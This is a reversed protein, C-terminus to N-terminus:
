SSILGAKAISHLEDHGMGSGLRPDVVDVVVLVLRVRSESPDEVSGTVNAVLSAVVRESEARVDVRVAAFDTGPGLMRPTVEDLISADRAYCSIRCIPSKTFYTRNDGGSGRAPVDREPPPGSVTVDHLAYTAHRGAGGGDKGADGDFRAVFEFSGLSAINSLETRLQLIRDQKAGRTHNDEGSM